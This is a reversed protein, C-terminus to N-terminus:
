GLSLGREELSEQLVRLAKPGVGHLAALEARPVGALADLTTYGAGTLARTAPAGIGHPLDTASEEPTTM